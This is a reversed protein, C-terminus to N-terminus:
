LNYRLAEAPAIQSARYAPYCTALLSIIAAGGCVRLVDSWLLQSPMASVFYITPDFIQAGVLTEAWAVIEPLFYAVLAGLSAGIAIGVLGIMIGQVMFIGVVSRAPLGMTRLVAIDSRKEAIMMILTTIINFAAVAIIIGLMTGVVTKEMQVAQFLSGQTQSWDRARYEPGLEAQLAQMHRPAQYISDFRLRLGDVGDGKRFLRRADDIHMLVLNQDMQAGAEFLGAVMFRRTRPIVGAPTVAVMPLTVHIRDGVGVRLHRALLGGLIVQYEGGQLLDLGGSRMFLHVDSVAPELEPDIGLLEVGQVFGGAAALGHGQVFPATGLVAPQGASVQARLESWEVLPRDATISGHPIVRLIRQKLERDFGNMVSLVVILAFVGLAMGGFAFLSVFSIFANRRKARIYRLGIYFPLRNSM